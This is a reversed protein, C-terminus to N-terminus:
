LDVGLEKSQKLAIQYEYVCDLGNYLLLDDVPIQRINNKTNGGKAKFHKSIHENYPEVGLRVFAQFKVSTVGQRNDLVHAITQTDWVWNNVLNGFKALSWRNEFKTNAGIKRVGSYLLERCAAIKAPTDLLWACAVVKGEHNKWGFGVSIVKAAKNDPKLRDTEYDVSILRQKLLMETHRAVDKDDYLRTVRWNDAKDAIAQAFPRKALNVAERINSDFVLKHSTADKHKVCSKPSYTPCVWANWRRGPIKFGAWQKIPGCDERWIPGLV